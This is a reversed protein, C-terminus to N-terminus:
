QRMPVAREIEQDSAPEPNCWAKVTEYPGKANDLTQAAGVVAFKVPPVRDPHAASDIFLWWAILVGMVTTKGNQRAVLVIVRRFRYSGDENLELAHILLWCQWPFLTVKLIVAAFAIVAFGNSTEKTLPRLPPTFLRPRTIGHEGDLVEGEIVVDEM